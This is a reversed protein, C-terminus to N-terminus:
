TSLKIKLFIVSRSTPLCGVRAFPGDCIWRLSLRSSVLRQEVGVVFVVVVDVVHHHFLLDCGAGCRRGRRGCGRCSGFGETRVQFVRGGNGPSNLHILNM